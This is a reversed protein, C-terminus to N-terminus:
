ISTIEFNKTNKNAILRDIIKLKDAVKITM